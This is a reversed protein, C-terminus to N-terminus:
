NMKQLKMERDSSLYDELKLEPVIFSEYKVEQFAFKLKVPNEPEAIGDSGCATFGFTILMTMFTFIIRKM